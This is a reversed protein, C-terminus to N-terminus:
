NEARRGLLPMFLGMERVSGCIAHRAGHTGFEWPLGHMSSLPTGDLMIKM